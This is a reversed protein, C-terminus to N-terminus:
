VLRPTSPARRTSEGAMNPSKRLRSGTKAKRGVSKNGGPSTFVSVTSRDRTTPAGGSAVNPRARTQSAM